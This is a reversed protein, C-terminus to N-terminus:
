PDVEGLSRQLAQQRQEEQSAEQVWANEVSSLAQFETFNGSM